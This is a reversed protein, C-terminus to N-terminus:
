RVYRRGDAVPRCSMRIDRNAMSDNPIPMPTSAENRNWSPTPRWYTYRMIPMSMPGATAGMDRPTSQRRALRRAAVAAATAPRAAPRAAQVPAAAARYPSTEISVVPRVAARSAPLTAEIPTLRATVSAPLAANGSLNSKPASRCFICRTSSRTREAARRPGSSAPSRRAEDTHLLAPMPTVSTRTTAQGAGSYRDPCTNVGTENAAHIASMTTHARPEAAATVSSGTISAREPM